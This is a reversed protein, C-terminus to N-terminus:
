AGVNKGERDILQLAKSVPGPGQVFDGLFPKKKPPFCTKQVYERSIKYCLPHPRPGHRFVVVPLPPFERRQGNSRTM